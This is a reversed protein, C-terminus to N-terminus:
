YPYKAINSYVNTLNTLYAGIEDYTHYATFFDAFQLM